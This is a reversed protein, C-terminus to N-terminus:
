RCDLIHSIWINREQCEARTLPAHNSLPLFFLYCLLFGGMVTALVAKGHRAFRRSRERGRQWWLALLVYSLLLGPFYHYLYMVRRSEFVVSMLMFAAYLLTLCEILQWTHPRGGPSRGLLRHRAVLLLSACVALTGSFWALQNGVLEVYATRGNASDWRYNINRDHFPWHWPASGNETPDNLRRRPANLHETGLNRFGDRTAAWLVTPSLPAIGNAYNRYELSMGNFDQIGGPTALMPSRHGVLLHVWMVAFVLTAGTALSAGAAGLLHRLRAGVTEQGRLDRLLLLMPLLLLFAANVKVMIALTCLGTLAACRWAGTPPTRKWSRVFLWLAAVMFAMQIGELHVARFHVVFANEFLYLGALLVASPVTGVIELMLGYFALAGLVAFLAPALRMGAFNFGRPMEEGTISKRLTLAHKDLHSNAGYFQEGAAILLLGLPPHPTLQAYGEVYRQASTVHYNEDWFLAAPEGRHHMFCFYGTVLVLLAGFYKLVV